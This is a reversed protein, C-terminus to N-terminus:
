AVAGDRHRRAGIWAYPVLAVLGLASLGAGVIWSWPRYRFTVVHSGPPVVVGRLIGDVTYVEADRGDVEASWGPFALDALVLLAATPGGTAVVVTGATDRRMTTTGGDAEGRAAGDLAATVGLVDRKDVLATTRFDFGDGLRTLAADESATPEVARVRFARPLANANEYVVVGLERDRFAERLAPVEAAHRAAREVALRSEVLAGPSFGLNGLSVVAPAGDQSVAHLRLRIRRRDGARALAVRQEHWREGTAVREPETPADSPVGDVSTRLVVASAAGRVLVGWALEGAESVATVDLTFPTPLTFAFRGDDGVTVPGIALPGGETRLRVMGALLRATRERGVQARVRTALDDSALPRRTAVWRVGVLDLAPATAALTVDPDVTFHIVRDCFSVLRTFFAYYSGPTLVDIARVDRLGAAASTLPVALDPDAIIRGPAAGRLFTVFAPPRYPDLRPPHHKPAMMWLEALVLVSFAHAVTRRGIAGGRWLAAIALLMTALVAPWAMRPTYTPLPELVVAVVVLAVVVLVGAVVARRAGGEDIRRAAIADLGIAAAIALAFVVTFTYKVFLIGRLVPLHTALEGLGGVNRLLLVGAWLACLRALPVLPSERAVVGVAALVLAAVGIAPTLLGDAFARGPPAFLTPVALSALSPWPVTFSALQARGGLTLGSARTMLEVAPVLLFAAVIGGAVLGVVTTAITPRGRGGSRGSARAGSWTGLFAFCLLAAQLKGGLLAGAAATALVLWGARRGRRGREFGFLMFPLFLETSLPHHAIWAMAYGGYATIAAGVVAATSRVGLERLFLWTAWALVLIRALYFLDAALPSPWLDLPWQLPHGAGSNLNAALPAGLGSGPNWLPLEGAALAARALYPSPEDVWAAGEVDLLHAPGVGPPDEHAQGPPRVPGDPTLGATLTSASLSRGDFVVDHFFIGHLVVFLLLAPM